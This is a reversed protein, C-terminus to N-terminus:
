RRLRGERLEWGPHRELGEQIEAETLVKPGVM